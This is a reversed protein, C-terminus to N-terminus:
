IENLICYYKIGNIMKIETHFWKQLISKKPKETINNDKYIREILQLTDSCKIKSGAVLGYKKM